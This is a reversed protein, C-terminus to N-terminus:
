SEHHNKKVVHIFFGPDSEQYAEGISSFTEKKQFGLEQMLNGKYSKRILPATM